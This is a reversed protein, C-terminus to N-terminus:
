PNPKEENIIRLTESTDYPVINDFLEKHLTKIDGLHFDTFSILQKFDLLVEQEPNKKDKWREKLYLNTIECNIRERRRRIFQWWCCNVVCHFSFEDM